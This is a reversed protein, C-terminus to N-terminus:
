ATLCWDFTLGSERRTVNFGTDAGNCRLMRKKRYGLGVGGYTCDQSQSDWQQSRYLTEVNRRRLAQM